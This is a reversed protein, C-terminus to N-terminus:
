SILLQPTEIIDRVLHRHCPIGDREYCLVTVDRKQSLENLAQVAELSDINKKLEALFSRKFGDWSKKGEKFSFLLGPSPSLASAWADFHTKLIGRPYFRTILIRIGDEDEVPQFLSKSKITMGLVASEM